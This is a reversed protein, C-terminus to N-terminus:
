NLRNSKFNHALKLITAAKSGLKACLNNNPM